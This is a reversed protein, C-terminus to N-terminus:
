TAERELDHGEHGGAAFAGPEPGPEESAQGTNGLAFLPHIKCHKRVSLIELENSSIHRYNLVQMAWASVRGSRVMHLMQLACQQSLEHQMGM